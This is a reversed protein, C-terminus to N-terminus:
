GLQKLVAVAGDVDLVDIAFADRLLDDPVFRDYKHQQLQARKLQQVIEKAAPATSVLEQFTRKVDDSTSQSQTMEFYFPVRELPVKMGQHVLLLMMTRVIRTGYWPVIMFKDGGLPLISRELLGSKQALERAEVLRKKARPLL